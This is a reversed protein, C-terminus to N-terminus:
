RCLGILATFFFQVSLIAFLMFWLIFFFMITNASVIVVPTQFEKTLTVTKKYDLYRYYSMLLSDAHENVNLFFQKIDDPKMAIPNIFLYLALYM